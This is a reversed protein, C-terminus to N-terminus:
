NGTCWQRWMSRLAAEMARTFGAADCLRSNRVRERLGARLRSLADRDGALAAARAVCEAPTAAILEPLGAATLLSVGVRGAHVAGALTVVPVGMWLAECTTTTGNYPFTDLAIDVRGYLALHEQPTPTHGLLELRDPGIGHQAFMAAIRARTPPDTLSPNKVLLRAGPVAQLVQSWLAIVAPQMKSLNNFSGFTVVGSTEAPLPAVDPTDGPPQYCLFCGDLRILKETYFAERGPPDALADTIRYGMASLGTTNPYGLWTVQVPAPRWAFVALRHASTHGALDVLIDIGDATVQAALDADSLKAIDRWVDAHARLRATTADARPVDSYCYVEFAGHDHAALLPELFYAVSHTRFDPSVYGVRLRRDPNRENAFARTPAQGPALEGARHERLMEAPDQGALYNLTLLLNSRTRMNRPDRRLGERYVALAEDMRGQTALVSGLNEYVFTAGPKLSQARRYHEEAETLFGKAQLLSGLNSQWEANDPRLRLAARLVEAAEEVAGRNILGHALSELPEVYNPNLKIAQRFAAEAKDPFGCGREAIGLNFHAEANAPQLAIVKRFCDAAEAHRNLRGCAVGRMRWAEADAPARACVQALLELAESLQGANLLALAKQKKGHTLVNKRTAM